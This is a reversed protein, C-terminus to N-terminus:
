HAFVNIRRVRQVVRVHPKQNQCLLKVDEIFCRRSIVLLSNLFRCRWLDIVQNTSYPFIITSCTPVSKPAIKKRLRGFSSTFHEFKLTPRCRSGAATFRENEAKVHFGTTCLLRFHVEGTKYLKVLM